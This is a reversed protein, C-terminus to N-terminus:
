KIRVKPMPIPPPLNIEKALVLAEINCKALISNLVPTMVEKPIKKDKKWGKTIQEVTDPKNIYTLVGNLTIKAIKPEYNATFEFVFKVADQKERGLGLKVKEVDKLSVNSNVGVKGKVPGFKEVVIKDFQLGVVTM